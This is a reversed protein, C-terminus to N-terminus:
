KNKKIADRLLYLETGITGALAFLGSSVLFIDNSNFIYGVLLFISILWGIM